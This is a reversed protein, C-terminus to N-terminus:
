IMGKEGIDFASPIIRTIPYQGPAVLVEVADFRLGVQPPSDLMRWWKMAARIIREQQARSIQDSPRVWEDSSRTKVEVFVLVKGHRCVLDIESRHDRFNHYLIRYGRRRLVDTAVREGYRGADSTDSFRPTPLWDSVSFLGAIFRAFGWDNWPPSTSARAM